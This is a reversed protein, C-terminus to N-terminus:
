VIPMVITIHKYYVGCYDLARGVTSFGSAANKVEKNSETLSDAQPWMKIHHEFFCQQLSSASVFLSSIEEIFKM